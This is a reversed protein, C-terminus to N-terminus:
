AAWGRRRAARRAKRMAAGLVVCAGSKSIGFLRGGATLNLGEYFHARAMERARGQPILKLLLRLRAAENREAIRAPDHERPDKWRWAYLGGEREHRRAREAARLSDFMAGRIRVFAYACFTACAQGPEPQFHELAYLLGLNGDSRLDSLLVRAPLKKKLQRAAFYVLGQYFVWLANRHEVSRNAFYAAWLRAEAAQEAPSRTGAKHPPPPAAADLPPHVPKQM